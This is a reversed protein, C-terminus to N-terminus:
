GEPNQLVKGSKFAPDQKNRQKEKNEGEFELHLPHLAQHVGPQPKIVYEFCFEPNNLVIHTM